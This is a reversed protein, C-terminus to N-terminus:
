KLISIPWHIANRSGYGQARYRDEVFIVRRQAVGNVTLAIINVGEPRQTYGRLNEIKVVPQNGPGSWQYLTFKERGTEAKLPGGNAPGGIILYAGVGNDLTPVWQISRFGQGNLNLQRPNSNV